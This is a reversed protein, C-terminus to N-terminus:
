LDLKEAYSQLTAEHLPVRNADCVAGSLSKALQHATALIQKFVIRDHKRNNRQMFLALGPTSLTGINKPDLTGPKVVSAISFYLPGKGNKYKHRHYVGFEGYHLYNEELAKILDYGAFPRSNISMVTLTIVEETEVKPQPTKVETKETVKPKPIAENASIITEPRPSSVVSVTQNASDDTSVTEIEISRPERSTSKEALSVPAEQIENELDQTSPGTLKNEYVAVTEVVDSTTVVVSPPSLVIEESDEQGMTPQITPEITHRANQQLRRRKRRWGDFAIGLIILVGVILLIYRLIM